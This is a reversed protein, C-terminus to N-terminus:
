SIKQLNSDDGIQWDQLDLLKDSRNKIEIYESQGPPEDYMFENIIVDGATFSDFLTFAATANPAITNGSQDSIGSVTLTYHSGPLVNDYSLRVVNDQVSISNPSGIGNDVSFDSASVSAPDVNLNFIVDITQNDAPNINQIALPPMVKTVKIDDFFFKESRSSTYKSFLGVYNSTSYSNDTATTSQRNFDQGGTPDAMLEWQGNITRTAKVRIAVPDSDVLGDDGDILITRNNGDQRYLKIDDDSSGIEIYYGNIGGKISTADSILYFRALSTSSTKFDMKIFAEWEGYAASSPTTISSKSEVSPAKLQLQNQSNVIHHTGVPDTWTPNDTFNGDDFGEDIIITQGVAAPGYSLLLLVVWVISSHPM